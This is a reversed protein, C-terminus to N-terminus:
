QVKFRRKNPNCSNGFPTGCSYKPQTLSVMNIRNFFGFPWSIISLHCNISGEAHWHKEKLHVFIIDKFLIFAKLNQYCSCGFNPIPYYSCYFCKCWCCLHFEESHCLIQHMILRAILVWGQLSIIKLLSSMCWPCIKLFFLLVIIAICDKHSIVENLPSSFPPCSITFSLVQMLAVTVSSHCATSPVDKDQGGGVLVAFYVWPVLWEFRM